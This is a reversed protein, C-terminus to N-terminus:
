IIYIVNFIKTLRCNVVQSSCFEVPIYGGPFWVVTFAFYLSSFPKDHFEFAFTVKTCTDDGFHSIKKVQSCFFCYPFGM